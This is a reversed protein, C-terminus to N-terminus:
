QKIGFVQVTYGEPEEQSRENVYIGVSNCNHDLVCSLYEPTEGFPSFAEAPSQIRRRAPTRRPQTKALMHLPQKKTTRRKLTSAKQQARADLVPSEVLPELHMYQRIFNIYSILSDRSLSNHM